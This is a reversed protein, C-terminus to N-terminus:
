IERLPAFVGLNQTKAHPFIKIGATQSPNRYIITAAKTRKRREVKQSFHSLGPDAHKHPTNEQNSRGRNKELIMKKAVPAPGEIQAQGM